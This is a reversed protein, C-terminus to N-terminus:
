LSQFLNYIFLNDRKKLPKNEEVTEGEDEEEELLM